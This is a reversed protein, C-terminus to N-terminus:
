LRTYITSICLINVFFVAGCKSVERLERKEIASLVRAPKRFIEDLLKASLNSTDSEYGTEDADGFDDYELMADPDVTLLFSAL